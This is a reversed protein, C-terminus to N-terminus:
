FFPKVAKEAKVIDVFIGDATAAAIIPECRIKELTNECLNSYATELRQEWINSIGPPLESMAPVVTSKLGAHLEHNFDGDSSFVTKAAVLM